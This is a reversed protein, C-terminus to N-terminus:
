KSYFPTYKGLETQWMNLLHANVALRMTSYFYVIMLLNPSSTILFTIEGCLDSRGELTLKALLLGSKRFPNMYLPNLGANLSLNSRQPITAPSTCVLSKIIPSTDTNLDVEYVMPCKRVLHSLTEINFNLLFAAKLTRLSPFSTCFCEIATDLQLRPCKSIDVEQVAEFSLIPLSRLLLSCQDRRLRDFKIPSQEISRLTSGINHSSPLVSLLIMLSTIQPCSSLNVKQM